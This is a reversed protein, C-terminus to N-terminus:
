CCSLTPYYSSHQPFSVNPCPHNSNVCSNDTQLPLAGSTSSSVLLRSTEAHFTYLQQKRSYTRMHHCSYKLTRSSATVRNRSPQTGDRPFYWLVTSITETEQSEVRIGHLKQPTVPTLLHILTHLTQSFAGIDWSAFEPNWLSPISILNYTIPRLSGFHM